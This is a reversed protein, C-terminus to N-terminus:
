IGLREKFAELAAPLLRRVFTDKEADTLKEYEGFEPRSPELRPPSTRCRPKIRGFAQVMEVLSYHQAEFRALWGLRHMMEFRMQDAMFLHIDMIHVQQEQPLEYFDFPDGLGLVGMIIEYYAQTSDEGPVALRYLAADGVGSLRTDVSFRGGFRKRWPGFAKQEFVRTRYAQLDVVESM